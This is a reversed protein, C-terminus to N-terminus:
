LGRPRGGRRRLQGAPWDEFAEFTERDAASVEELRKVRRLCPPATLGVRKAM